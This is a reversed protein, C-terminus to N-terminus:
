LKLIAIVTGMSGIWFFFMWRLLESKMAELKREVRAELSDMRGAIRAELAAMDAKLTAFNAAFLDKFEQWYSIDVANFWEELEDAVDDGLKDYFKRSLRATIPM